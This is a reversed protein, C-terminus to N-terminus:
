DNIKIMIILSFVISFKNTKFARKRKVILREDTIKEEFSFTKNRYSCSVITRNEKGLSFTTTTLM